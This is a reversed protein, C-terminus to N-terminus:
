ARRPHPRRSRAASHAARARRCSPRLPLRRRGRELRRRRDLRSQCLHHRRRRPQPPTLAAKLADGRAPDRLTGRVAYGKDLLALICHSAIFGSAGTVLVTDIAVKHGSRQSHRPITMVAGSEATSLEKAHNLNVYYVLKHIISVHCRPALHRFLRSRFPKMREIRHPAKARRVPM